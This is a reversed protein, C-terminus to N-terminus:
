VKNKVKWERWYARLFEQTVPQSYDTLLRQYEDDFQQYDHPALSKRM